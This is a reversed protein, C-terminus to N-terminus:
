NLFGTWLRLRATILAIPSPLFHSEPLFKGTYSCEASCSGGPVQAAAAQASGAYFIFGECVALISEQLASKAGCSLPRLLGGPEVWCVPAAVPQSLVRCRCKPSKPLVPIRDQSEDEQDQVALQLFSLEWGCHGALCLKSNLM